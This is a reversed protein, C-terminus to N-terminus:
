RYRSTTVVELQSKLKANDHELATIREALVEYSCEKKVNSTIREGSYNGSGLATGLIILLVNVCLFFDLVM